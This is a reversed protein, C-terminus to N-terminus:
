VFFPLLLRTTWKASQFCKGWSNIWQEYFWCLKGDRVVCMHKMGLVGPNRLPLLSSITFISLEAYKWALHSSPYWCCARNGPTMSYYLVGAVPRNAWSTWVSWAPWYGMVCKNILVLCTEGFAILKGGEFVVVLISYRTPQGMVKTPCQETFIGVANAWLEFTLLALQCIYQLLFLSIRIQLM